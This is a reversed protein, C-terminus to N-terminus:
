FCYKITVNFTKFMLESVYDNRVLSEKREKNHKFFTYIFLYFCETHFGEM